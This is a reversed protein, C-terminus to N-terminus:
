TINLYDMYSKFAETLRKRTVVKVNLLQEIKLLIALQVSDRSGILDSVILDSLGAEAYANSPISHATSVQVTSGALM